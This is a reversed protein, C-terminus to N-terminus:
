KKSIIDLIDKTEDQAERILRISIKRNRRQIYKDIDILKTLLSNLKEIILKEETEENSIDVNEEEIKSVDEIVKADEKDKDDVIYIM